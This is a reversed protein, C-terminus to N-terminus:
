GVMHERVPAARARPSNIAPPCAPNRHRPARELSARPARWPRDYVSPQPSVHHDPRRVLPQPHEHAGRHALRTLQGGLSQRDRARDRRQPQRRHQELLPSAIAQLEGMSPSKSPARRSADALRSCSRPWSSGEPRGQGDEGEAEQLGGDATVVVGDAVQGCLAVQPAARCRRPRRSYGPAAPCRPRRAPGAPRREPAAPPPSSKLKSAMAGVAYGKAQGREGPQREHLCGRAPPAAPPPPRPGAGAPRGTPMATAAGPPPRPPPGSGHLAPAFRKSSTNAAPERSLRRSATAATRSRRPAPV